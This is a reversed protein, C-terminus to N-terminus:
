LAPCHRPAVPACGPAAAAGAGGASQAVCAYGGTKLPAAAANPSAALAAGYMGAGAMLFGASAVITVAFRATGTM